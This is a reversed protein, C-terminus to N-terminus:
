GSIKRSIIERSKQAIFIDFEQHSVVDILIDNRRLYQRITNFHNEFNCGDIQNNAGGIIGNITNKISIIKDSEIFTEELIRNLIEKSPEESILIAQNISTNEFSFDWWVIVNSTTQFEIKARCERDLKDSNLPFERLPCPYITKNTSGSAQVIGSQNVVAFIYNPRMLRSMAICVVTDSVEAVKAELFIQELNGDLRRIIETLWEYPLLLESAFENAESEIIKYNSSNMVGYLDTHCVIISGFVHWPIILHGIEHALTFRQRNLSKNSALIIRPRDNKESAGLLIADVEGPPIDKEIDAFNQALDKVDLPVKLSMKERLRRACKRAPTM